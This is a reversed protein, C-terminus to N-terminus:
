WSYAHKQAQRNMLLVPQSRTVYPMKEFSGIKKKLVAAEM